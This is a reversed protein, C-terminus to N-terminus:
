FCSTCCICNVAYLSSQELDCDASLVKLFLKTLECVDDPMNGTFYNNELKLVNLGKMTGFIDVPITGTLENSSLSLQVLSTLAALKSPIAGKLANSHMVHSQLSVMSTLYNLDGTVNSNEVHFTTLLPLNAIQTPVPSNYSNGGIILSTLKQLNTFTEGKLPGDYSNSDAEYTVLNTLLGIETPIGDNEFYTQGVSLHELATLQGLFANGEKGYNVLDNKGLKLTVLSQKLLIIEPPLSGSLKNARLDLGTVVRDGDQTTACMVGYWGDCEHVYVSEPSRTSPTPPWHTSNIWPPPDLSYTHPVRYTAYYICGLVYRQVIRADSLEDSNLGLASSVVWELSQFQYATTANKVFEDGGQLAAFQLIKRV